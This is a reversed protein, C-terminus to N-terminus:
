PKKNRLEAPWHAFAAVVDAYLARKWPVILSPLSSFEVWRWRFFEPEVHASLDFDDDNGRFVMAFWKQRQGRYKGGWSVGVLEDPLDYDLWQTTEDVIDVKDTGTEELVERIAADGLGEHPDIGGQPMQWYDSIIQGPKPLRCGVWVLGKDNFIAAGVGQRYPLCKGGILPTSTDSVKM